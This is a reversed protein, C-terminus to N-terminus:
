RFNGQGGRKPLQASKFIYRFISLKAKLLHLRIARGEFTPQSKVFLILLLSSAQSRLSPLLLPPTKVQCKNEAPEPLLSSGAATEHPCELVGPLTWTSLFQPRGGVALGRKGPMYVYWILFIDRPGLYSKM